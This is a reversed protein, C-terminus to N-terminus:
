PDTQKPCACTASWCTDGEKDRIRKDTLKETFRFRQLELRGCAAPSSDTRPGSGSCRRRVSARLRPWRIAADQPRGVPARSVLSCTVSFRIRWTRVVGSTGLTRLRPLLPRRLLRALDALLAEVLARIGGNTSDLIPPSPRRPGLFPRNLRVSAPDPGRPATGLANLAM